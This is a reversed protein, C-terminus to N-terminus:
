NALLGDLVFRWARPRGYGWVVIELGPLRARSPKKGYTVFSLRIPWDYKPKQM